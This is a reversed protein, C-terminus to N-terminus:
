FSAPRGRRRSLRPCGHTKGAPETRGTEAVKETSKMSPLGCAGQLEEFISPARVANVHGATEDNGDLEVRRRWREGFDQAALRRGVFVHQPARKEARKCRLPKVALDQNALKVHRRRDHAAGKPLLEGGPELHELLQAICPDAKPHGNSRRSTRQLTTGGIGTFRM